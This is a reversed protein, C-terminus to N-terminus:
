MLVRRQTPDIRDRLWDGILNIALVTLMIALGPFTSIWWALAVYERGSALIRGWSPIDAPLGVGLFSLSAEMIIMNAMSFSAVVTLPGVMNPFIHVALVRRHSTGIAKAALVYDESMLYLTQAHALRAYPPWGAIVLVIIVNVLGSGLAVAIVMALLIFPFALQVDTLGMIVANVNGGVYAALSGLLVGIVGAVLMASVGVIMSIRAGHIILSLIDRGFYDTGLQHNCTGEAQWRPPLLSKRLDQSLPNYPAICPAFIACVVFFGLIVVSLFVVWNQRFWHRAAGTM